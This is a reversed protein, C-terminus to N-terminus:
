TVVGLRSFHEVADVTGAITLLDTARLTTDAEAFTFKGGTRKLAVVTVSYRQRLAASELTKGVIIEPTRVEAIVFGEDLEFYDVMQGSVAHAVRAGMQKEPYVVHHAGVRSLIRGHEDSLAKAWIVPVELDSLAATTLISAEIDTGIAVVAVDFDAAGLQRLADVNTGNAERVHPLISTYRQVLAPDTDVAMVDIHLDVVTKALSSGFRGLGIVLVSSAARAGHGPASPDDIGLLWRLPNTAM